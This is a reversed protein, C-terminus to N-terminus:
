DSVSNFYRCEAPLGGLLQKLEGAAVPLEKKKSIELAQPFRDVGDYIIGAKSLLQRIIGRGCGLHVVRGPADRLYRVVKAQQMRSAILNDDDRYAYLGIRARWDPVLELTLSKGKTGVGIM